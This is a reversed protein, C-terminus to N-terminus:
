QYTRLRTGHMKMLHKGLKKMKFLDQFEISRKMMLRKMMVQRDHLEISRKMMVQWDQLEISRKMMLQLLSSKSLVVNFIQSGFGVNM